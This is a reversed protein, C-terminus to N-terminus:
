LSDFMNLLCNRTGAPPINKTDSAKQTNVVHLKSELQKIKAQQDAVVTQLTNIEIINKNFISEFTKIRQQFKVTAEDTFKQVMSSVKEAVWTALETNIVKAHILLTKLAANEASLVEERTLVTANDNLVEGSMFMAELAKIDTVLM